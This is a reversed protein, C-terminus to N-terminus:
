INPGGGGWYESECLGMMFKDGGQEFYYIGEFGKNEDELEFFYPCKRVVQRCYCCCGHPTLLCTLRCVASSCAQSPREGGGVEREEGEGGGVWVSGRERCAWFGLGGGRGRVSYSTLDKNVGWM